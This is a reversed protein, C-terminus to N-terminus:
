LSISKLNPRKKCVDFKLLSTVQINSHQNSNSTQSYHLDIPSEFSLISVNIQFISHPANHHLPNPICFHHYLVVTNKSQTRPRTAFVITTRDQNCQLFLSVTFNPYNFCFAALLSFCTFVTVDLNFVLKSGELNVRLFHTESPAEYSIFVILKINVVCYVGVAHVCLM